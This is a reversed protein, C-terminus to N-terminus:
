TSFHLTIVSRAKLSLIRRRARQELLLVEVGMRISTPARAQQDVEFRTRARWRALGPKFSELGVDIVDSSWKLHPRYLSYM